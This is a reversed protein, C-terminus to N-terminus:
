LGILGSSCKNKMLKFNLVNTHKILDAVTYDQSVCSATPDRLFGEILFYEQDSSAIWYFAEIKRNDLLRVKFVFWREMSLKLKVDEWFFGM